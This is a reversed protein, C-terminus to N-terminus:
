GQDDNVEVNGLHIYKPDIKAKQLHPGSEIILGDTYEVKTGAPRYPFENDNAWHATDKIDGNPDYALGNQLSWNALDADYVQFLIEPTSDREDMNNKYILKVNELRRLNFLYNGFSVLQAQTYTQEM